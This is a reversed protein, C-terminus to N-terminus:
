QALLRLACRVPGPIERLGAAYRGVTKEAIDLKTALAVQWGHDAGHISRGLRCFEEKTMKENM